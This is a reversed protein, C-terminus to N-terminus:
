KQSLSGQEQVHVKFEVTSHHNPMTYKYEWIYKDDVFTYTQICIFDGDAFMAIDADMIPNAHFTIEDGPYYFSETAPVKDYIFNSKDIVTLRYKDNTKISSNNSSGCGALVSGMLLMPFVLKLIKM